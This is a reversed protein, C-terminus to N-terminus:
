CNYEDFFLKFAHDFRENIAFDDEIAADLSLVFKPEPSNLRMVSFYPAVGNIGDYQRPYVHCVSHDTESRIVDYPGSLLLYYSAFKKAVDDLSVEGVKIKRMQIVHGM